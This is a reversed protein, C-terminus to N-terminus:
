EPPGVVTTRYIVSSDIALRLITASTTGDREPEVAVVFVSDNPAAVVTWYDAGARVLNVPWGPIVQENRGLAVLSGGAATGVAGVPLYLTGDPTVDPTVRAIGCETSGGECSGQWALAGPDRYPWGEVVAGTADIAYVVAEGDGEGVVYVTGEDAVLPAVMGGGPGTGSWASAGAIPLDGPGAEAVRGAADIAILRLTSGDASGATVYVTGDPGFGPASLEGDVRVPWGGRAGALDFAAVEGGGVAVSTGDPGVGVVRGGDEAVPATAGARVSGDAEVAVLRCTGEDCTPLLLATGVMRPAGALGDPLAAPWGPLPQGEADFAFARPEDGATGNDHCVVRLSGDPAVLPAWAARGAPDDCSWGPLRTPWGERPNGAADLLALVAGNPADVLVYLGGYPGTALRVEGSRVPLTGDVAVWGPTPAPTPPGATPEPSGDPTPAPSGDPTPFAVDLPPTPVLDPSQWERVLWTGAAVAGLLGVLVLSAAVLVLVGSTPRRRHAIEAHVADDVRRSPLSPVVPFTLRGVDATLLAVDRRCALCGDLHAQLEEHEGEALGFDLLAAALRLAHDHARADGNM